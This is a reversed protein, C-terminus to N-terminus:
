LTKRMSEWRALLALADDEDFRYGSVLRHLFGGLDDALAAENELITSIAATAAAVAELDEDGNQNGNSISMSLERLFLIAFVVRHPTPPTDKIYPTDDFLKGQDTM